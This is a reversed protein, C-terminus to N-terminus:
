CATRIGSLTVLVRGTEADWVRATGDFSATVVRSGDADFAASNVWGTHGVLTALIGGTRADWIRATNDFAASVVRATRASNRM